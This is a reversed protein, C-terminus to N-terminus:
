GVGTLSLSYRKTTGGAAALEYAGADTAGSSPRTNGFADLDNTESYATAADIAASGTKIRGDFGSTTTTEITDAFTVNKTSNSGPASAVDTVNYDSDAHFTGSFGTTFGLVLAGKVRNNAGQDEAVGTGGSSLDSPKVVTDNISTSNGAYYDGLMIGRGSADTVVILNNVSYADNELSLVARNSNTGSGTIVNGRIINNDGSAELTANQYTNTHSFQIGEVTMYNVSSQIDLLTGYDNTKRFAAGQTADYSFATASDAFSEGSACRLIIDRTADTTHSAFTTTSTTTLESDNYMEGIEQTDSTVLNAPLAAEWAAINARDRSASGITETNVTVM